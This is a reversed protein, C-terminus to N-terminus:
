LCSNRAHVRSSHIFVFYNGKISSLIPWFQSNSSKSVPFGDFNFDLTVLIKRSIKSFIDEMCKQIGYYWLKGKSLLQISLNSPTRMLTRSDKPLFTFGAYILIALLDNVARASIRHNVIWNKLKDRFYSTDDKRTETPIHANEKQVNQSCAPTRKYAYLDNNIMAYIREQVEKEHLLKMKQKERCKRVRMRNMESKADYYKVKAM